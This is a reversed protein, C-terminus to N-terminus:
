WTRRKPDERVATNGSKAQHRASFRPVPMPCQVSVRIGTTSLRTSIPTGVKLHELTCAPKYKELAQEIEQELVPSLPPHGADRLLHNAEQLHSCGIAVQLCLLYRMCASDPLSLLSTMGLLM